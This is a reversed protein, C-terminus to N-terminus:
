DRRQRRRAGRLAEFGHQHGPDGDQSQHSPTFSRSLGPTFESTAACVFFAIASIRPAASCGRAKYLQGDRGAGGRGRRGRGAGGRGCYQTVAGALGSITNECHPSSYRNWFRGSAKGKGPRARKRAQPASGRPVLGQVHVSTGASLLCSPYQGCRLLCMHGTCLCVHVYVFVRTKVCVVSWAPTKMGMLRKSTVM